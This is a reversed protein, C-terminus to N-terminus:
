TPDPPRPSGRGESTEYTASQCSVHHMIICYDGRGGERGGRARWNTDTLDNEGGVNCFGGDCDVVNDIDDVSPCHLDLGKVRGLLYRGLITISCVTHECECMCLCM